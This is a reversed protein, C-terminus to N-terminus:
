RHASKPPLNKQKMAALADQLRQRKILAGELPSAVHPRTGEFHVLIDLMGPTDKKSFGGSVGASSLYKVRSVLAKDKQALYELYPMLFLVTSLSAPTSLKWTSEWLRGSLGGVGVVPKMDGLETPGHGDLPEFRIPIGWISRVAGFDAIGSELNDDIAGLIFEDHRIMTRVRLLERALFPDAKTLEEMNLLKEHDHLFSLLAGGLSVFGILLIFFLGVTALLFPPIRNM